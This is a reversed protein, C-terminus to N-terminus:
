MRSYKDEMSQIYNNIKTLQEESINASNKYRDMQSALAKNVEDSGFRNYLNTYAGKIANIADGYTPNNGEFSRKEEGGIGWPDDWQSQKYTSEDKVEDKKYFGNKKMHVAKTAMSGRKHPSKKMKFAM